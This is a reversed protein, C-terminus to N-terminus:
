NISYTIEKLADYEPKVKNNIDFWQPLGYYYGKVGPRSEKNLKGNEVLNKLAISLGTMYNNRIKPDKLSDLKDWLLCELIEISLCIHGKNSICNISRETWKINIEQGTLSSIAKDISKVREILQAREQKLIELATM